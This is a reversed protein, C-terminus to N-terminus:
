EKETEMDAPVTSGPFDSELGMKAPETRTELRSCFMPHRQALSASYEIWQFNLIGKWIWGDKGAGKAM